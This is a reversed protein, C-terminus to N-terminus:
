IGKKINKWIENKKFTLINFEKIKIHENTKLTLIIYAKEISKPLEQTILKWNAPFAWYNFM